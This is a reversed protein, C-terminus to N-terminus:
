SGTAALLKKLSNGGGAWLVDAIRWGAPTRVLKYIVLTNQDFNTFRASVMAEKGGSPKTEYDVSKIEFEQADVFPDFDLRSQDRKGDAVLLKVLAPDFYEKAISPNTYDFAVYSDPTTELYHRYLSRILTEPDAAPKAAQTAPQAPKAAQAFAPGAVPLALPLALASVLVLPAILYSARKGPPGFGLRM